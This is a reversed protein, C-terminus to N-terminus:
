LTLCNAEDSHDLCDYVKDCVYNLPICRQDSRCEFQDNTCQGRVTLNECGIEDSFDNCDYQGDCRKSQAICQQNGCPFAGRPCEAASSEQTSIAMNNSSPSCDREDSADSCDAIFNCRFKASICVGSSACRFEDKSCFIKSGAVIDNRHGNTSLEAQVALIYHKVYIGIKALIKRRLLVIETFSEFKIVVTIISLEEVRCNLEDSGDSCEQAGNCRYEANICEGSQCRIQSAYCSSLRRSSNVNSM